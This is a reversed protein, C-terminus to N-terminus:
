PLSYVVSGFLVPNYILHVVIGVALLRHYQIRTTNHWTSSSHYETVDYKGLEFLFLAVFPLHLPDLHVGFVFMTLGM